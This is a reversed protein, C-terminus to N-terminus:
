VPNSSWNRRLHVSRLTGDTPKEAGEVLPHLRLTRGAVSRLAPNPYQEDGWFALGREAHPSLWACELSLVLGGDLVMFTRGHATGADFHSPFRLGASPRIDAESLGCVRKVRVLSEGRCTTVRPGISDVDSRKRNRSIIASPEHLGPPPANRRDCPAADLRRFSRRDLGFSNRFGM